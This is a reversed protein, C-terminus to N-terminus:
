GHLAIVLQVSITISSPPAVHLHLGATKGPPIWIKGKETAIYEWGNLANFGYPFVKDITGVTTCMGRATGGHAAMAEDHLAVVPTTVNTGDASKTVIAASWQESTESTTNLIRAELIEWSSTAHEYEILTIVGTGSAVRDQHLTAVTRPTM